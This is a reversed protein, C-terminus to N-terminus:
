ETNPNLINNAPALVCTIIIAPVKSTALNTTAEKNYWYQSEILLIKAQPQQQSLKFAIALGVVGAGIICHDFHEM